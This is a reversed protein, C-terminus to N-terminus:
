SGADKGPVNAAVGLRTAIERVAMRRGEPNFFSGKVQLRSLAREFADYLAPNVPDPASWFTDLGQQHCLGPLRYIADGLACTPTGLRLAHLGVTSNVLVVGLSGKLLAHLDGGRIVSVRRAIGLRRALRRIHPTWAHYASELPHLKFVLKRDPPANAAFSHLVEAAFDRLDGYRSAARVQYDGRMQLAVLNYPEGSQLLAAECATAQRRDRGAIALLPLWGLYELVPWYQKDSVYFPYLPRGFVMLLNYTVEGFAEQTFSHGFRAVLDPKETQAALALIQERDSPFHSLPGM